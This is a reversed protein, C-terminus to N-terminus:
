LATAPIPPFLTLMEEGGQNSRLLLRNGSVDAVIRGDPLSDGSRLRLLVGDPLTLLVTTDRADALRGVYGIGSLEPVDDHAPEQVDETAAARQEATIRLDAERLSEGGWRKSDFFAELDEAPPVAPPAEALRDRDGTRSDGQGAPIPLLWAAAVIVLAAAGAVALAAAHPRLSPPLRRALLQLLANLM